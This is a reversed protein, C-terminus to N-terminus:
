GAPRPKQNPILLDGVIHELNHINSTIYQEGYIRIFEEIFKEFLAQALPRLAVHIDTSCITVATFLLLFHNYLTEDLVDKLVVIGLYNLFTRWETGKWFSLCDTGRMKRHIEKPLKISEIAASLRQIHHSSFKGTYGLNGVQWGTLLRKMVGLELLHLPDAVVFDKIMDLGPIRQLPSEQTTHHKGYGKRRFIADTRLPCHLSPFVVTRSLYSYEGNITCKLCGDKGNFNVVGKVFARAPSDCIFCRLKISITHDNVVIGNELCPIIEDVFPTLFENVDTPKSKGYFIGIPLAQLYPFEHVNCLIPWLQFKSSKHVPLGDININISIMIDTSLNKFWKELCAKFGHHWYNGGGIPICLKGTSQPTELLTRPDLPLNDDHYQQKILILLDKLAHHTINHRLAWMRLAEDSNSSHQPNHFDSLDKSSENPPECFTKNTTRQKHKNDDNSVESVLNICIDNISAPTNKYVHKLMKGFPLIKQYQIPIQAM